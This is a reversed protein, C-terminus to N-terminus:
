WRGARREPYNWELDRQRREIPADVPEDPLPAPSDERRRSPSFAPYVPEWSGPRDSARRRRDQRTM